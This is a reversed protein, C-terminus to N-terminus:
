EAPWTVQPSIEDPVSNSNVLGSNGPATGFSVCCQESCTILKMSFLIHIELSFKQVNCYKLNCLGLIQSVCFSSINLNCILYNQIRSCKLHISCALTKLNAQCKQQQHSSASKSFSQHHQQLRKWRRSTSASKQCFSHSVYIIGQPANWFDQFQMMHLELHAVVTFFGNTLQSQIQQVKFQCWRCSSVALM